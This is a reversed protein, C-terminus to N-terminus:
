KADKEEVLGGLDTIVKGPLGLVRKFIGLVKESVTNIPMPMVEPNRSDGRIQFHATLLAKEDGALLWGALPINTVIKDVTRLPKVGLQTDLQETNLDLSGVLSMNMANSDIFLDETSLVGQNLAITADLRNFPMGERAMDPLQLSLIQSVNLLSFVRALGKFRRLVGDRIELHFGGSSTPLFQKGALGELYFDGRLNGTILGERHLLDSYVAGARFNELHGSMKLLSPGSPQRVVAVQGVCYGSEARFHLPYIHLVGDRLAIIGDAYQFKLGGLHGQRAYATIHLSTEGSAERPTEVAPEPGQWLGIVEDINGYDARIDLHTRPAKFDDIRGTVEARTGGDLRVRVTKFQLGAGDIVLQGDVDRLYDRDSRFILEDARIAPAKVRLAIQPQKFNTLSGSVSIPSNGLRASIKEIDARENELRIQGNVQNLDAIARTLHLGFDRLFLTGSYRQLRTSSGEIQLRAALGGRPQLRELFPFRQPAKDMALGEVDVTGRFAKDGRLELTGRLRADIPPLNLRGHALELRNPTLRATFFMESKLGAPKDFRQDVRVALPTLEASGDLALDEPTGRAELRVPLDGSARLGQRGSQEGLLELIRAAAIKGSLNLRLQPHPQFPGEAGGSFQFVKGWLSGQGQEITLSRDKLSAKLSLDGLTGAKETQWSGGALSLRAEQLGFQRAPDLLTESTGAFHLSELRLTGKALRQKVRSTLGGPNADPLLRTLGDLPSEGALQGEFRWGPEERRAILSGKLAIADLNLSLAELREAGQSSHWSGQLSLRGLPLPQRFWRQNVLSLKDGALTAAINLGDAPSGKLQVQLDAAGEWGPTGPPLNLEALLPGPAARLLQLRLDLSAQRWATASAPLLVEGRIELPAGRGQRGFEGALELQVRAGPGLNQLNGDFQHFELVAAQEAERPLLLYLRGDNIELSRVLTSGGLATASSQSGPPPSPAPLPRALTLRIEPAQLLLRSLTLRGQLLPRLELKLFLKEAQISGAPDGAEGIRLDDFEFAPGHRLSLSARGLRVPTGLSRSLSEQLQGRYRDLDFTLAFIAAGAICILLLAVLTAMLPHRRIM